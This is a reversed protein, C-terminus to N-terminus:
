PRQPETKGLVFAKLTLWEPDNQSNFHKGGSHFFDGGAEEALAHVLLPSQPNGPYAVRKILEFNERSQEENWRAAEASLPVLHLRVNNVSHCTVCRAHGPRKKLFIPEVQEKFFEYNLAAGAAPDTQAGEGQARATGFGAAGLFLWGAALLCLAKM